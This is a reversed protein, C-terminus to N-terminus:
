AVFGRPFSLGRIGHTRYAQLRLAHKALCKRNHRIDFVIQTTHSTRIIPAIVYKVIDLVFFPQYRPDDDDKGNAHYSGLLSNLQTNTSFSQLQLGIALKQPAHSENKVWIHDQRSRDLKSTKKFCPGGPGYAM